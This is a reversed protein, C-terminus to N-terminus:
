EMRADVVPSTAEYKLSSALSQAVPEFSVSFRHQIAGLVVARVIILEVNAVGVEPEVDVMLNLTWTGFLGDGVIGVPVYVAVAVKVATVLGYTVNEWDDM